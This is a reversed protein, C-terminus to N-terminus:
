ISLLYFYLIIVVVQVLKDRCQINGKTTKPYSYQKDTFYMIEFLCFTIYPGGFQVLM